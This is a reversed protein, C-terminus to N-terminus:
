AFGGPPREVTKSSRQCHTGRKSARKPASRALEAKAEYVGVANSRHAPNSGAVESKSPRREGLQAVVAILGREWLQRMTEVHGKMWYHYRAFKSISSGGKGQDLERHCARCGSAFAFDHAKMGAGKGWEAWNAHCPEGRGGECIGPMRICCELEYALNLLARSRFNM